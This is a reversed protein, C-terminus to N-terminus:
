GRCDLCSNGYPFCIRSFIMNTKLVTLHSIGIVSDFLSTWYIMLYFHRSNPSFIQVLSHLQYKFGHVQFLDSLSNLYLPLSTWPSLDPVEWYKSILFIFLMSFPSESPFTQSIHAAPTPATLSDCITNM